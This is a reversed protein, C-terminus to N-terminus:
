NGKAVWSYSTFTNGGSNLITVGNNDWRLVRVINGEAAADEFNTLVVSRCATPFATPFTITQESPGSNLSFLGYQEIAGTAGDRVWSATSGFAATNKDQKLALRQVLDVEIEERATIFLQDVQTKTYADLIGYGALSNATPVKTGLAENIQRLMEDVQIKTYADLIGYGSLSTAKVAFNAIMAQLSKLLQRSDEPDLEGQYALVVAVLEEQLM